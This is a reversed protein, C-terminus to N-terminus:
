TLNVAVALAAALFFSFATPLILARRRDLTAVKTNSM